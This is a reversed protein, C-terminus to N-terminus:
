AKPRETLIVVDSPIGTRDEDPLPAMTLGEAFSIEDRPTAPTHIDYGHCRDKSWGQVRTDIMGDDVMRQLVEAQGALTRTEPEGDLVVEDELWATLEGPVDTLLPDESAWTMFVRAVDDPMPPMPYAYFPVHGDEIIAAQEPTLSTRSTPVPSAVKENAAPAANLALNSFDTQELAARIVAGESVPRGLTERLRAAAGEIQQKMTPTVMAHLRVDLNPNKRPM